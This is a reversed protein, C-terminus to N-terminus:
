GTDTTDSLGLHHTDTDPPAPDGRQAARIVTIAAARWRCAAIFRGPSPQEACWASQGASGGRGGM